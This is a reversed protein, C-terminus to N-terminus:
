LKIEWTEAADETEAVGFPKLLDPRQIAEAFKALMNHEALGVHHKERPQARSTQPSVKVLLKNLNVGNAVLFDQIQPVRNNVTYFASNNNTFIVVLDNAYDIAGCHCLSALEPFAQHLLGTIRNLEGVLVFVNSLTNTHQLHEALTSFKRTTSM